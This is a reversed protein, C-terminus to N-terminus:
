LTQGHDDAHPFISVCLRLSAPPSYVSSLPHFISSPSLAARAQRLAFVAFIVSIVFIPFICDTKKAERKVRHDKADKLDKLRATLV